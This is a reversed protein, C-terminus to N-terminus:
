RIQFTVPVQVRVRVARGAVRAPRYRSGLVVSIAEM